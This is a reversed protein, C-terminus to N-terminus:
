QQSPIHVSRGSPRTQIVAGAPLTRLQRVQGGLRGGSVGAGKIATALVYAEADDRLRLQVTVTDEVPVSPGDSFVVSYTGPLVKGSTFQEAAFSAVHEFWTMLETRDPSVSQILRAFGHESIEIPLPIIQVHHIGTWNLGAVGISRQGIASAIIVMVSRARKQGSTRPAQRWPTNVATIARELRGFYRGPREGPIVANGADLVRQSAQLIERRYRRALGLAASEGLTSPLHKPANM